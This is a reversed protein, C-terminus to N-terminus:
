SIVVQWFSGLKLLVERKEDKRDGEVYGNVLRLHKMLYKEGIESVAPWPENLECDNGIKSAQKSSQKSCNKDSRKVELMVSAPEAFSLKRHQLLLDGAVRALKNSGVNLVACLTRYPLSDLVLLILEDPLKELSSQRLGRKKVLSLETNKHAMQSYHDSKRSTTISTFNRKGGTKALRLNDHKSEGRVISSLTRKARIQAKDYGPNILGSSTKWEPHTYHAHWDTFQDYLIDKAIAKIRHSPVECLNRLPRYELYTFTKTLIAKPLSQLSIKASQSVPAQGLPLKTKTEFQQRQHSPTQTPKPKSRTDCLVLQTLPPPSRARLVLAKPILRRTM